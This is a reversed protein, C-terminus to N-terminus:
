YTFVACTSPFANYGLKCHPNVTATRLPVDEFANDGIKLVSEPIEIDTLSRCYRFAGSEIRVCSEPMTVKELADCHYFLDREIRTIDAPLTVETLANCDQFAHVGISTVSDPIDIHDMNQCYAFAQDGIHTVGQGIFVFLIENRDSFWPATTTPRSNIKSYEFNSMAGSGWIYLYGADDLAWSVNRGCKGGNVIAAGSNSNLQAYAPGSDYSTDSLNCLYIGDEASPPSSTSAALYNDYNQANMTSPLLAASLTRIASIASFSGIVTVLLSLTIVGLCLRLNLPKNEFHMKM